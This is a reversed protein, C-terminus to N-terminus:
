QIGVVCQVLFWRSRHLGRRCEGIMMVLGMWGMWGMWGTWCWVVLHAVVSDRGVNRM